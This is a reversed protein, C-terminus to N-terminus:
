GNTEDNNREHIDAFKRWREELFDAAEEWSEVDIDYDKREADDERYDRDLHIEGDHVDSNDIRAINVTEGDRRRYYITVAFDQPDDLSPNVRVHLQYKNQRYQGLEYSFSIGTM